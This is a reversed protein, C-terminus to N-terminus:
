RGGARAEKSRVRGRFVQYALRPCHSERRLGTMWMSGNGRAAVAMGGHFRAACQAGNDGDLRRVDLGECGEVRVHLDNDHDGLALGVDGDGCVAGRADGRVLEVGNPVLRKGEGHSALAVGEDEADEVSLAAAARDRPEPARRRHRM